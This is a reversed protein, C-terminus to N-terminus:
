FVSYNTFLNRPRQSLRHLSFNSVEPISSATRVCELLFDIQNHGGNILNQIFPKLNSKFIARNLDMIAEDTFGSQQLIQFNLQIFVFEKFGASFSLHDM